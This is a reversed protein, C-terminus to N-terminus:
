LRFCDEGSESFMDLKELQKGWLSFKISDNDSAKKLMAIIDASVPKETAYIKKVEKPANKEIEASVVELVGSNKYNKEKM